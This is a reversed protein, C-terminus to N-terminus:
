RITLYYSYSLDIEKYAHEWCSNEQIKLIAMSVLREIPGNTNTVTNKNTLTWHKLLHRLLALLLQPHLCAFLLTLVTVCNWIKNYTRKLTIKLLVCQSPVTNMMIQVVVISMSGKRLWKVKLIKVAHLCKILVLVKLINHESCLHLIKMIQVTLISM